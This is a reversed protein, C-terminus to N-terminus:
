NKATFLGYKQHSFDGKEVQVKSINKGIM